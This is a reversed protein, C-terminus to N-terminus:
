NDHAHIPWFEHELRTLFIQSDLLHQLGKISRSIMLVLSKKFLTSSSSMNQYKVIFEVLIQTSLMLNQDLLMDFVSSGDRNVFFIPYMSQFKPSKPGKLLYELM